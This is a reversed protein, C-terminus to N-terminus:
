EIVVVKSPHQMCVTRVNNLLGKLPINKPVDKVYRRLWDIAPANRPGDKVDISIQEIGCLSLKELLCAFSVSEIDRGLARCSFITEILRANRGDLRCVLAGIIGSDSVIDSLRVTLTVYQEKNMVNHSEIETMRRLALNFQNTKRSLDFLRGAHSIQNVHITVIMQLSALYTGDESSKEKLSNRIQNAQIDATRIAAEHDPRIQYLGPYHSIKIMTDMGNVEAHLLKVMPMVEAMKLLEVPNDDIFLIAASDINLQQTLQRVNDAKSQWNACILAFDSWQLPFDDRREFLVKVDQEENRSCITLMIGSHKLRLLLKQLEYHGKTLNLSKWGDEALIGRYITDDLDLVIAKIRPLFSAPLLQTGLHRALRITISDSFPYSSIEDNRRDYIVGIEDYAIGALDLLECGVMPEIHESLYENFRRIKGRVNVRLGFLTDGPELSEPWNNVWIPATTAERLQQIRGVLWHVADEMAMSQRYIRWDLWIIYADAQHDGGLRSLSADYDSYDFQVDAEWLGCFPPMLNGILEFPMTRDVRIKYMRNISRTTSSTIQERTPLSSLLRHVSNLHTLVNSM